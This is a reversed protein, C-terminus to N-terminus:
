DKQNRTEHRRIIARRVSQSVMPANRVPDCGLAEPAAGPSEKMGQADAPVSGAVLGQTPLTTMAVTRPSDANHCTGARRLLAFV